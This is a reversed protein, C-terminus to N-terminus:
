EGTADRLLYALIAGMLHNIDAFQAADAALIETETQIWMAPVLEDRCHTVIAQASAPTTELHFQLGIVREGLQFAQNDCVASRALRVAGAPLDFTEGHWHFVTATPPFQFVDGSGTEAQVPWWGIEKAPNRYVAAGMAAAICQAGLCIGLVPKGADIVARIFRKEAALWPFEAEDNVSMPGGMVVLLDLSTPDPLATTEYFRTHSVTHGATELWPAISGLGEFAVHQLYHTHM